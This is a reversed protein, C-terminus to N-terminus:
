VTEVPTSEPLGQRLLVTAYLEEGSAQPQRDGRCTVLIRSSKMLVAQPAPRQDRRRIPRNPPMGLPGIREPHQATPWVYVQRERAGRM